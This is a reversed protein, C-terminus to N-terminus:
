MLNLNIDCVIATPLCKRECVRKHLLSFYTPIYTTLYTKKKTRVNCSCSNYHKKIQKPVLFYVCVYMYLKM